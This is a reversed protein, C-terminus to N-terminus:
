ELVEATFLGNRVSKSRNTVEQRDFKPKVSETKKVSEGNEGRDVRFGSPKKINKCSLSVIKECLVVSVISFAGQAKLAGKTFVM